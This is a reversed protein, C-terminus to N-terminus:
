KKVPIQQQQIKFTFDDEVESGGYAASSSPMLGKM